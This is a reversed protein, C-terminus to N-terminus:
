YKKYTFNIKELLTKTIEIGILNCIYTFHKEFYQPRQLYGELM